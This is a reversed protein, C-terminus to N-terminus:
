SSRDSVDFPQSKNQTLALRTSKRKAFVSNVWKRSGARNTRHQEVNKRSGSNNNVRMDASYLTIRGFTLADGAPSSHWLSPRRPSVCFYRALPPQRIITVDVAHLHRRRAGRREGMPMGDVLSMMRDVFVNIAGLVRLAVLNMPDNARHCGEPLKDFDLSLNALL